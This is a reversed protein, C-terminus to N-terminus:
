DPAARSIVPTGHLESVCYRNEQRKQQLREGCRRLIPGFAHGHRSL